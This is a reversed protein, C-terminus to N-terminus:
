QLSIDQVERGMGLVMPYVKGDKVVSFAPVITGDPIHGGLLYCVAGIRCNSGITVNPLIGTRGGILTNNGIIVKGFTGRGMHTVIHGQIEVSQGILVNDGIEVLPLDAIRVNRGFLVGKGVKAGMMRYILNQFGFFHDFYPRFLSMIFNNFFVERMLQFHLKPNEKVDYTGVFSITLKRLKKYGVILFLVFGPYVLVAIVILFLKFLDHTGVVTQYLYYFPVAGLFAFIATFLLAVLDLMFIPMVSNEEKKM